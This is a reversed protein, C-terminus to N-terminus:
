QEYMDANKGNEGQGFLYIQFWDPADYLPKDVMVTYENLDNDIFTLSTTDLGGPLPYTDDALSVLYNHMYDYFRVNSTTMKSQLGNVSISRGTSTYTPTPTSCGTLVTVFSVMCALMILFRKAM